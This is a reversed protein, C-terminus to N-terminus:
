KSKEKKNLFNEVYPVVYCVRERVEIILVEKGKDIPEEQETYFTAPRSMTGTVNSITIEGMGKVPIPTVVTASRGELTKESVSITSESNKLPVLVYFNLLFVIVSSLMAAILFVWGSGLTSLKEGLYGFLSVFAVWPVILVPDIPGDFQLIDGVLFLVVSLITCFILIYFYLQEISQIGFM